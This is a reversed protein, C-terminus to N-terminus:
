PNAEEKIYDPKFSLTVGAGGYSLRQYQIKGAIREARERMIKLGYHMPKELDADFGIGDDNIKI